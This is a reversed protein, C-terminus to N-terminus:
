GILRGWLYQLPHFSTYQDDSSLHAVKIIKLQNKSAQENSKFNIAQPSIPRHLSRKIVFEKQYECDAFCNYLGPRNCRTIGLCNRRLMM